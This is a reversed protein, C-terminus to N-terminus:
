RPLSCPLLFCFPRHMKKNSSILLLINRAVSVATHIFIAWPLAQIDGRSSSDEPSPEHSWLSNWGPLGWLGPPLGVSVFHGAHASGQSQRDAGLARSVGGLAHDLGPWWRWKVPSLPSSGVSCLRLAPLGEAGQAASDPNAGSNGQKM